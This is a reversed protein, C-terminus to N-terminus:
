WRDIENGYIIIYRIQKISCKFLVLFTQELFFHLSIFKCCDEKDRIWGRMEKIGAHWIYLTPITFGFVKEVMQIKSWILNQLFLQWQQQKKKIFTSWYNCINTVCHGTMYNYVCVYYHGYIRVYTCLSPQVNDDKM